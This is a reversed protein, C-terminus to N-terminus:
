KGESWVAVYSILIGFDKQALLYIAAERHAQWSLREGPHGLRGVTQCPGGRGLGM